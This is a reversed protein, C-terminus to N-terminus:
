TASVNCQFAETEEACIDLVPDKGVLRQALFGIWRLAGPPCGLMPRLGEHAGNKPQFVRCLM